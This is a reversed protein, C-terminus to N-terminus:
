GGCWQLANELLRQFNVDLWVPLLHGPTLVCVRGKGQVRVYGAACICAPANNYPETAFKSEEGQSASYSALFIDADDSLIELKYHEDVECFAEVGETLPHPKVAQVLVPGREPHFTFRSGILRDLIDSDAGAVTASHVALLGGGGEVFDVFARGAAPSKWDERGSDKVEASKCLLIVSYESFTSYDFGIMDTVVDFEFGKGELPKVGETPVDGPHWHDDCILLVRM